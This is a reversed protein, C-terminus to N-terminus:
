PYHIRDGGVTLRTHNTDKKHPFYSVVIRGYTATHGKPVAYRRIFRIIDTGPIDQIGQLLRRLEDAFIKMWLTRYKDIKVLECFDLSKGTDGDIM